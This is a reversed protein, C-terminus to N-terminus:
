AGGNPLNRKKLKAHFEAQLREFDDRIQADEQLQEATPVPKYVTEPTFEHNGEGMEWVFSHGPFIEQDNLLQTPFAVKISLGAAIEVWCNTKDGKEEDISCVHKSM